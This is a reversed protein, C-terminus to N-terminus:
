ECLQRAFAKRDPQAEALNAALAGGAIFAFAAAIGSALRAISFVILDGSLASVMLSLVCAAASAKITRVLGYRRIVTQAALAGILYGAANVTNMFGAVSYSWGLSDRMDPLVLAFAFRCIGLGICPVISLVVILWGPHTHVEVSNTSM